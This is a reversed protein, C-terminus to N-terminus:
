RLNLKMKNEKRNYIYACDIECTGTHCLYQSLESKLNKVGFATKIIKFFKTTDTYKFKSYIPLGAEDYKIYEESLLISGFDSASNKNLKLYAYIIVLILNSKVLFCKDALADNPHSFNCDTLPHIDFGNRAYEYFKKRKKEMITLNFNENSNQMMFVDAIFSCMGTFVWFDNISKLAIKELHIMCSYRRILETQIFLFTDKVREDLMISSDLIMTGYFYLSDFNYEYEFSAMKNIDYSFQNELMIWQCDLSYTEELKIKSEEYERLVKLFTTYDSLKRELRFKTDECM